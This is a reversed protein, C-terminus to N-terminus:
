FKASMKCAMAKIYEDEYKCKTASVEKMRWVELLFLNATPYDSGSVINTVKVSM